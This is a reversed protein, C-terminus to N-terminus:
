KVRRLHSPNKKQPPRMQRDFYPFLILGSLYGVIHVDWAISQGPGGAFLGGFLGLILNLCIWIASFGLVRQDRLPLVLGGNFGHRFALAYGGPVFLAFRVAAGMLGAVAGSAGILAGMSARYMVVHVLAGAMGCLGALGLFKGASLRRAVPTGLALLWIANFGVHVIDAHLFNYSIFPGLLEAVSASQDGWYRAPIISGYFFIERDIQVPLLYRLIHIGIISGCLVLIIRPANFIPPSPPRPGRNLVM